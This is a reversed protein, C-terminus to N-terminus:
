PARPKRTRLRRAFLLPPVVVLSEVALIAVIEYAPVLLWLGVWGGLILVRAFWHGRGLGAWVALLGTSGVLLLWFIILPFLYNSILAM